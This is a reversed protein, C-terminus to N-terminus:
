NEFGLPGHDEKSLKRDEVGREQGGRENDKAEVMQGIGTGSRLEEPQLLIHDLGNPHTRGHDPVQAIPVPKPNSRGEGKRPLSEPHREAM